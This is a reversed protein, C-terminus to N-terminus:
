LEDHQQKSKLLKEKFEELYHISATLRSFGNYLAVIERRSLSFQECPETIHEDRDFNMVDICEVPTLIIRVATALAHTQLKGWLRCKECDACDVISQINLMRQRFDEMMTAANTGRFLSSEDFHMPFDKIAEMLQIVIAQTKIDQFKDGTHYMDQIDSPDLLYPAAKHLARLEVLWVFYLNHIYEQGQKHEFRRKFEQLNPRFEDEEPYYYHQVIHLTISSHLGSITRYFVRREACSFSDAVSKPDDGFIGKELPSPAADIEDFMFTPQKKSVTEEQVPNIFYIELGHYFFKLNKFEVGDM